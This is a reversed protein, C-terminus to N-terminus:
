LFGFIKYLVKELYLFYGEKDVKLIEWSGFVVVLNVFISIVMEKLNELVLLLFIIFVLYVIVGVKILVYVIDELIFLNYFVGLVVERVNLSILLMWVLVKGGIEVVVEKSINM